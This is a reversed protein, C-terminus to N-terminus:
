SFIPNLLSIIDLPLYASSVAASCRGKLYALYQALSSFFLVNHNWTLLTLLYAYGLCNLNKLWWDAMCVIIDPDPTNRLIQNIQSKNLQNYFNTTFLLVLLALLNFTIINSLNLIVHLFVKAWIHMVNLALIINHDFHPIVPSFNYNGNKKERPTKISKITWKDIFLFFSKQLTKTGM